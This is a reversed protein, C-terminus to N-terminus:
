ALYVADAYHDCAASRRRNRCLWAAKRRADCFLLLHADCWATQKNNVGGDNRKGLEVGGPKVMSMTTGSCLRRRRRAQEKVGSVGDSSSVSGYAV